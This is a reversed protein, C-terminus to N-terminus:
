HAHNKHHETIIHTSTRIFESYIPRRVSTCQSWVVACSTGCGDAQLVGRVCANSASQYDITYGLVFIGFITAALPGASANKGDFYRGKIGSSAKATAAGKPLKSYFDVLPALGAGQGSSQLTAFILTPRMSPLFLGNRSTGSSRYGESVALWFSTRVLLSPSAVKPPVLGSLSRRVLSAHM